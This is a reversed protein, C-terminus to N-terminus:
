PVALSPSPQRRLQWLGAATGLDACGLRSLLETAGLEAAAPAPERAERRRPRATSSDPFDYGPFTTVQTRNQGVAAGEPAARRIAVDPPIRVVPLQAAPDGILGYASSLDQRRM